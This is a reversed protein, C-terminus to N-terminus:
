VLQLSLPGPLGCGAHNRFRHGKQSPMRTDACFVQNQIAATRPRGPRMMLICVSAPRSGKRRPVCELMAFGFQQNPAGLTRRAQKWCAATTGFQQHCFGHLGLVCCLTAGQDKSTEHREALRADRGERSVSIRAICAAHLVGNGLIHHREKSHKSIHVQGFSHHVAMKCASPRERFERDEESESPDKTLTNQPQTDLPLPQLFM